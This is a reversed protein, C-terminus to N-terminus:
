DYDPALEKEALDILQEDYWGGRLDKIIESLHLIIAEPVELGWSFSRVNDGPGPKRTPHWVFRIKLVEISPDEGLESSSPPFGYDFDVDVEVEPLSLGSPLERHLRQWVNPDLTVTALM